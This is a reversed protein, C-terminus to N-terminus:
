ERTNPGAVVDRNSYVRMMLYMAFRESDIPVVSLLESIKNPRRTHMEVEM